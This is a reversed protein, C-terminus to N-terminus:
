IILNLVNIQTPKPVNNLSPYNLPNMGSSTKEIPQVTPFSDPEPVASSGIAVGYIPKYPSPSSSSSAAPPPPVYSM